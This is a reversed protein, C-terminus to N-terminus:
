CMSVSCVEAAETSQLEHTLSIECYMSCPVSIIVVSTSKIHVHTSTSKYSTNRGGSFEKIRYINMATKGVQEQCRNVPRDKWTFIILM